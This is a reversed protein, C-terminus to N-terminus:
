GKAKRPVVPGFQEPHCATMGSYFERFVAFDKEIDGTPTFVPGMGAIKRGYDLYSLVIPVGAGLAIYYFGTRWSESHKRTGEPSVALALKDSKKLMEVANAVADHRAKRDIPVAGMKRLFISMPWVFWSAKLFWSLKLGFLNGAAVLLVGDWNSTHPAAILVYRPITPAAGATRWGAAHFLFRVLRNM